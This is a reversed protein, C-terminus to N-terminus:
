KDIEPWTQRTVITYVAGSRVKFYVTREVGLLFWMAVTHEEDEIVPEGFRRRLENWKGKVDVGPRLDVMTFSDVKGRVFEVTFSGRGSTCEYRQRGDDARGARPVTRGTSDPYLAKVDAETSEFSLGGHRFNKAELGPLITLVLALLTTMDPMTDDGGAGTL